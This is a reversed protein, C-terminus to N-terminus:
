LIAKQDKAIHVQKLNLGSRRRSTAKLIGTQMRYYHVATQTLSRWSKICRLCLDRGQVTNLLM